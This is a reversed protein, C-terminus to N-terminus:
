YCILMKKYIIGHLISNGNCWLYKYKNKWYIFMDIVLEASENLNFKNRKDLKMNFFISKLYNKISPLISGMIHNNNIGVSYM